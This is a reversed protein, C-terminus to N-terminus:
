INNQYHLLQGFSVGQIFDVFNQVSYEQPSATFHQTIKISINLKQYDLEAQALASKASFGSPRLITAHRLIILTAIMLHCRTNASFFQQIVKMSMIYTVWLNRFFSSCVSDVFIKFFSTHAKVTWIYPFPTLCKEVIDKMDETEFVFNPCASKVAVAISLELNGRQVAVLMLTVVDDNLAGATEEILNKCCGDPKHMKELRVFRAGDGLPRLYHEDFRKEVLGLDPCDGHDELDMEVNKKFQDYKTFVGIVPVNQDPCIDRFHRLDLLPRQNDMPICYWIAHLRDALRKEGSKQRVFNQVIGLEKDGGSEFGRSDHFIYGDNNSFVIEDEIRHEGREVSPDLQIQEKKWGTRRYIVPSETTECVRQLISTKGANARGIILVRFKVKPLQRPRQQADM